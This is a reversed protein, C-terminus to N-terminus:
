SDGIDLDITGHRSVKEAVAPCIWPTEHLIGPQSQPRAARREHSRARVNVGHFLAPKRGGSLHRVFGREDIARFRRPTPFDIIVVAEIDTSSLSHRFHDSRGLSKDHDSPLTRHRSVLLVRMRLNAIVSDDNEVLAAPKVPVKM